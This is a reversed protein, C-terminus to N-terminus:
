WPRGLDELFPDCRECLDRGFTRAGCAQCDSHLGSPHLAPPLDQYQDPEEVWETLCGRCSTGVLENTPGLRRGCACYGIAFPDIEVTM